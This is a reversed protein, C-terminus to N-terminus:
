QKKRYSELIERARERDEGIQAKLDELGPFRREPRVYLILDNRIMEGYIDRDFSFLNTESNRFSGEVTPRMGVNTIGMHVCGDSTTTFSAYVGDPPLLKSKDPIVNVTPFGITTGLHQGHKVIGAIPYPRGLLKTVLEMDGEALAARVRTSSVDKGCYTEKELIQTEFGYRMGLEKLDSAGASRQYGFSFDTGVSVFCTHLTESLVSRVFEEAGMSMFQKTFPCELLIDVGLSELYGSREEHSLISEGKTEITLVVSDLGNTSAEDTIKRILKRHGIHVGDFKGITVATRRFPAKKDFRRYEELSHFVKM